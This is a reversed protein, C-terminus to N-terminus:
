EESRTPGRRAMWFAGAASVTLVRAGILMIQFVDNVQERSQNTPPPIMMTGVGITLDLINPLFLLSQAALYFLASQCRWREVGPTGCAIRWDIFAQVALFGHFLLGLLSVISWAIEVESANAM